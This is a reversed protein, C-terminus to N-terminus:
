APTRDLERSVRWQVSVSEFGTHAKRTLYHNQNIPLQKNPAPFGNKMGDSDDPKRLAHFSDLSRFRYCLKAAQRRAASTNRLAKAQARPAIIFQSLSKKAAKRRLTGTHRNLDSSLEGNPASRAGYVQIRYTRKSGSWSATMRM